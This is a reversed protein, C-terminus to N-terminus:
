TVLIRRCLEGCGSVEKKLRETMARLHRTSTGSCTVFYKAYKRALKSDLEIAIVNQANEERLIAVCEEISLPTNRKPAESEEGGEEEEVQVNTLLDEVMDLNSSREEDLIEKADNSRPEKVTTSYTRSASCICTCVGSGAATSCSSRFVTRGVNQASSVYLVSSEHRRDGKSAALSRCWTLSSRLRSSRLVRSM